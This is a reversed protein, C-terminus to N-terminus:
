VGKHTLAIANANDLFHQSPELLSAALAYSLSSSDAGLGQDAHGGEQRCSVAKVEYSLEQEWGRL